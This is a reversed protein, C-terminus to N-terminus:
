PTAFAMGKGTGQSTFRVTTGTGDSPDITLVQPLLPAETETEAGATAYLLEHNPDYGLGYVSPDGITGVPTASGDSTDITYLTTTSAGYLIGNPADFALGQVPDEGNDFAGVLVVEATSTDITVLELGAAGSGYLLDGDADYALGLVSEPTGGDRSAFGEFFTLGALTDITFTAGSPSEIGYAVEINENWALGEAFVGLRVGTITMEGDSDDFQVSANREMDLGMASGNYALGRVDLSGTAGLDTLTADVPNAAYLHQPDADDLVLLRANVSDWTLGIAASVGIYTGITTASADSTDLLHLGDETTGYLLDNDNDFALGTIALSLDGVEGLAGTAKNITVLLENSPDYAYLIGNDDDHALSSLDSSTDSVRIGGLINGSADITILLQGSDDVAYYINNASDYAVGSVEEAGTVSSFATTANSPDITVITENTDDGGFLLGSDKDFALSEIFVTTDSFEAVLTTTGDAVNVTYLEDDSRAAAYLVSSSSDYALSHWSKDTGMAGESGIAAAVGTATNVSYFSDAADDTAYLIGNTSDFGCGEWDGTVGLAGVVAVKGNTADLTLLEDTDDNIAYLIGNAEDFTLCEIEGVFGGIVTIDGSSVIAVLADQAGDTAIYLTDTAPDYAAAEADVVGVPGLRVPSSLDSAPDHVLQQPYVADGDDDRVTGVVVSDDDVITIDATDGVVVSPPASLAATIVADAERDFDRRIRIEPLDVTDGATSGAPFTAELPEPLLYDVGLIAAGALDVTVTLDSPLSGDTSLEVTLTVAGVEATEVETAVFEVAVAAAGGLGGTGGQGGQASGGAGGQASGGAATTTPPTLATDSGCAAFAAVLLTM